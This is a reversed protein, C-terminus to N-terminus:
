DRRVRARARPKHEGEARMHECTASRREIEALGDELAKVRREVEEVKAIADDLHDETADNKL